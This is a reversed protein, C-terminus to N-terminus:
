GPHSISGPGVTKGANAAPAPVPLTWLCALLAAIVCGRGSGISYARQTSSRM